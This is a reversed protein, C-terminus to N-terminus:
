AQVSGSAPAETRLAIRLRASRARPNVDLEGKSPTLPRSNIIRFCPKYSKISQVPLHRSPSPVKGARETLFRKVIRDELSHFSVVVLRGGPSLVKEAQALGQQLEDLESNVFIRLAQFTRTAPHKTEKGRQHLVRAVLEALDTTTQFPKESRRKVIARAVARSRREEGFDYLISAIDQEDFTNVVDAASPGSEPAHAAHTSSASGAAPAFMRMDLPGDHLFSFGREAQDLQMSSVGLDFVIGDVLAVNDEALVDALQSFPALRLKLRPAFADILAAGAEVATPDRDIAIVSGHAAELLARTYGGAGFTADIITEGDAPKLAEIVESLLVPIHVQNPARATDLESDAASM